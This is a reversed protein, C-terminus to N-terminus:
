VASIQNAIFAKDIVSRYNFRIDYTVQGYEDLKFCKVPIKGLIIIPEDEDLFNSRNKDSLM